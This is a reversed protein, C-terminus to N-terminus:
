RGAAEVGLGMLLGRCVGAVDEAGCVASSVAVGRCGAARLEGINGPGIGAIALHPLRATAAEALYERVYAVGSLVPKDKTTTAFVPGLGCYDAGMAAAGRAQHMNATSVGVLRGFGVVKRADVASLDGQGVHVGDAGAVVCVDARDNVVVRVQGRSMEVLRRARRVLEAGEMEKERLQLCEAGGEIALEAVREWTHHTCLRETILVCLGWQRGEGSALALTLRKALTYARYRLAEFGQGKLSGGDSGIKAVEELVRLAESVRMGAAVGVERLTRRRGETATTLGTGVDGPTDRELVALEPDMGARKAAERLEHRATKLSGALEGDDLGFRALDEMVRLGERARNLNADVIRGIDRM